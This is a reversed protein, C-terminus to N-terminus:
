ILDANHSCEIVDIQMGLVTLSVYTVAFDRRESVSRKAVPDRHRGNEIYQEMTKAMTRSLFDSM